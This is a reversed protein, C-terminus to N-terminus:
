DESENTDSTDRKKYGLSVDSEFNDNELVSLELLDVGFRSMHGRFSDAGYSGDGGQSSFVVNGVDVRGGELFREL